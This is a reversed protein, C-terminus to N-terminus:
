SRWIVKFDGTVGILFSPLQFRQTSISRGDRGARGFLDRLGHGRRAPQPPQDVLASISPVRGAAFQSEVEPRRFSSPGFRRDQIRQMM